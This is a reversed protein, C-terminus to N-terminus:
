TSPWPFMLVISHAMSARVPAEWRWYWSLNMRLSTLLAKMPKTCFTVALDSSSSSSKSPLLMYKSQLPLGPTSIYLHLGLFYEALQSHGFHPIYFYKWSVKSFEFILLLSYLLLISRTRMLLFSYIRSSLVDNLLNSINVYLQTPFIPLVYLRRLHSFLLLDSVM